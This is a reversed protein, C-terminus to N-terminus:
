VTRKGNDIIIPTAQDKHSGMCAKTFYSDPTVPTDALKYVVGRGDGSGDM